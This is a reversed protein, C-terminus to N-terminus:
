GPDPPPTTASRKDVPAAAKAAEYQDRWKHREAISALLVRAYTRADPRTDTWVFRPSGDALTVAAALRETEPAVIGAALLAERVVTSRDAKHEALRKGSWQRSVLVRRGGLGLHERDHAKSPCRGPTLGPGAQDPQVGYRLWNACRESCPLYRLEAHLRDVHAEVVPEPESDPETHTDAVAKTLYKTLYRVARDADESPAITGAMDVQRGFRMVHAPKAAPDAALRDLAQDWTPLVEGTDADVYSEGDWVPVRHVYVPRDFSPWWLQLYTAAVVQRITARPIAGRVAAHLHPVLRRQPEVAGFYQVKYGAARRLNQWFRDVLRAFHLADLAQRRYNYHAPDAPVGASTVAGYSPMTLTLFMSPRYERGDATAFVRGVTRDEQPVRPLDPADQRRRTSRVRRDENDPQDEDVQDEDLQRTPRYEPEDTRHWGETCQQMRLIRAKHACPPCVAERTSGCPLAVVDETDTARDHVRRLLPRICVKQSLALERAMDATIVPGDLVSTM